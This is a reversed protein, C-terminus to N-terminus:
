LSAPENNGKKTVRMTGIVRRGNAPSYLVPSSDFKLGDAIKRIEEITPRENLPVARENIPRRM